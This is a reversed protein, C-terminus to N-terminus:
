VVQLRVLDIVKQYDEHNEIMILDHNCDFFPEINIKIIKSNSYKVRQEWYEYFDSSNYLRNDMMLLIIDADDIKKQKEEYVYQGVTLRNIDDCIFNLNKLVLELYSIISKSHKSDSHFFLINTM